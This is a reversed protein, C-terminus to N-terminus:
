VPVNLFRWKLDDLPAANQAIVLVVVQVSVGTVAVTVPDIEPSVKVAVATVDPYKYSPIVRVPVPTAAPVTIVATISEIVPLAPVYLTPM